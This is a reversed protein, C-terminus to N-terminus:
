HSPPVQTRVAKTGVKEAAALRVPRSAEHRVAEAPSLEHDQAEVQFYVQTTSSFGQGTMDSTAPELGTAGELSKLSKAQLASRRANRCYAARRSHVGVAAIAGPGDGVGHRARFAASETRM